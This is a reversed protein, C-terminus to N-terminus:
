TTLNKWWSSLHIGEPLPIHGINDTLDSVLKHLKSTNNKCNEIIQMLSKKKGLLTM